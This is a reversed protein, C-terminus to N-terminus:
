LWADLQRNSRLHDLRETLVEREEDELPLLPPRLTGAPLGLHELVAKISAPNGFDSLLANLAYLDGLLGPAEPQGQCQAWWAAAVLAPAVNADFCLVGAAGLAAMTPLHHLWGTRLAVQRPIQGLLGALRALNGPATYSLGALHPHRGVLTTILEPGLEYGVLTVNEGLVVPCPARTMVQDFYALLETDRPRLAGTRPPFIQIADVGTAGLREVQELAERTSGTLGIGAGVTECRGDIAAVATAYLAEKETLTLGMGEGSGQSCLYISLPHHALRELHAEWAAHDVTADAAFPTITM